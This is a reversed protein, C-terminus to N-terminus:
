PRRLVCVALDDSVEDAHEVVRDLLEAGDPDGRDLLEVLAERGVLAGARRAEILGDTSLCVTSAPHLALVCPEPRIGLGVGLPPAAPESDPDHPTGLVLPPHHGAKAYRLTHADHDYVAVIVTAFHGDLDSNLCDDARALADAPDHGDALFTRVTYRVLAAHRLAERGHGSVDGLILGTREPGLAMVDYFDGGAAPGAAPRYAVSVQADGAHAPVSPLLATQLLGVDDLLAAGSPPLANPLLGGDPPPPARPPHLARARRAALYANIAMAIAILAFALFVGLVWRPLVRVIERVAGPLFSGRSPPALDVAPVPRQRLSAHRAVSPPGLDRPAARGPWVPAAVRRRPHQGSSARRSRRAQRVGRARAPAPNGTAAPNPTTSAGHVETQHQVPGRAATARSAVASTARAPVATDAPPTKVPAPEVTPTGIPPTSVAPTSVSPADVAPTSVSPVAVSPTSSAPTSVSPVHVPPTSVVPTSVPPVTVASTNLSPVTVPPTSVSPVTVPPVSAAGVRVQPVSAAGVRVQPSGTPADAVAPTPALAGAAVLSVALARVTPRVRIAQTACRRNDEAPGIHARQREGFAM